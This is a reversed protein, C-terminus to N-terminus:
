RGSTTMGFILEEVKQGLRPLASAPNAAALSYGVAVAVGVAFIIGSLEQVKLHQETVAESMGPLAYGLSFNHSWTFQVLM